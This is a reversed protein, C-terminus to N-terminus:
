KKGKVLLIDWTVPLGKSTIFNEQYIEELRDLKQKTLIPNIGKYSAGISKLNKLIEFSNKNYYQIKFSHISINKFGSNTMYYKVEDETPFKYIRNSNDLKKFCYDLENLTEPGFISFFCRGDKTLTRYFNDLSVKYNTWQLALSSIILNISNYNLPIEEIDSNVTITNEQNSYNKATKCMNISIDLQILLNTYGNIRFIEQMFGTGCGADLIIDQENLHPVTISFLKLAVQKQLSAYEDYHYAHRNFDLKIREKLNM